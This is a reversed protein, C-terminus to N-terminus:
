EKGIEKCAPGPLELIGPQKILTKAHHAGMVQGPKTVNDTGKPFDIVFGAHIHCSHGTIPHFPLIRAILTHALTKIM